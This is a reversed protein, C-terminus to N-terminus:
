APRLAFYTSLALNTLKESLLLELHALSRLDPQTNIDSIRARYVESQLEFYDQHFLRRSEADHPAISFPPLFITSFRPYELILTDTHRTTKTLPPPVRFTFSATEVSELPATPNPAPLTIDTPIANLDLQEQPTLRAMGAHAKHKQWALIAPPGVFAAALAALLLAVLLAALTRKTKRSM